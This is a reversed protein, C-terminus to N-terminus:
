KKSFFVIEATNFLREICDDFIISKCQELLEEKHIVKWNGNELELYESNQCLMNRARSEFESYKMESIREVIQRDYDNEENWAGVLALIPM